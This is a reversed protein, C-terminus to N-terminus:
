TIEVVDADGEQRCVWTAEGGLVCRIGPVFDNLFSSCNKPSTRVKESTRKALVGRPPPIPIDQKSFDAHNHAVLEDNYIRDRRKRCDM